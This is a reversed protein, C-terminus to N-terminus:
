RPCAHQLDGQIVGVATGLVRPAETRGHTPHWITFSLATSRRGTAAWTPSAPIQATTLLAVWIFGLDTASHGAAELHATYQSSVPSLQPSRLDQRGDVVTAGLVTPPLSKCAHMGLAKTERLKLRCVGGWFLLEKNGPSTWMAMSISAVDHYGPNAYGTKDLDLDNASWSEKLPLVFTRNEITVHIKAHGGRTQARSRFPSRQFQLYICKGTVWKGHKVGPLMATGGQIYLFDGTTAVLITDVTLM